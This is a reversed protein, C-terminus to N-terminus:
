SDLQGHPDRATWGDLKPLRYLLPLLPLHYLNSGSSVWEPASNLPLILTSKSFLLHDIKWIVGVVQIGARFDTLPSM